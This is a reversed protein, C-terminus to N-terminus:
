AAKKRRITELNQITAARRVAFLNKRLGVYRARRGTRRVLHTLRHEIKTRERLNARGARTRLQKRLRHQLPEDLGIQVARGKKTATTCMARVPCKACIEGDFQVKQGLDFNKMQGGPCGITKARMNIDFDSKSFRGARPRDHPKCFIATGAAHRRKIAESSIYGRDVYMAGITLGQNEIENLLTTAAEAEQRNAPVLAASLILDTDLDASLHQKYGNFLKTKSKRGHRMDPDEISVRRDPAVGERIREGGGEPDPELNQGRIKELTAVHEELPPKELEEPLERQLWTSLADLQGLLVNLADHKADDDSWDIDLAKKISSESLLPCGARVCLRETKWNLLGAACDVVKRAAHALLNFTDEVRGAGELPTSDMAVRLNKPLKKWDFEKTAKAIEITRELLRRDMDARVFRQRFDAFAGQSFVSDTAGVCDLVMQVSADLATLRVIEADSVNLYGQVLTAMAMLGPAIPAKGAGTDRYLAALEDQIRDDVIEHRHERLFVLLTRVRRLHRAIVQEQKSLEVRPKWREITM